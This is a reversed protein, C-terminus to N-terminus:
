GNSKLGRERVPLSVVNRVSSSKILEIEIWAGARPAVRRPRQRQRASLWKLGRERVPLSAPRAALIKHGHTYKLGRERVPLSWPTALHRGKESSLIPIEIWAGARPAVLRLVQSLRIQGAYKLGRERVPLSQLTRCTRPHCWIEIWAGARPAVM